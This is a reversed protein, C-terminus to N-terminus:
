ATKGTKHRKTFKGQQSLLKDKTANILISSISFLTFVFVGKLFPKKHQMNQQM